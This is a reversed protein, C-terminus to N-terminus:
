LAHLLRYQQGGVCVSNVDDVVREVVRTVVSQNQCRVKALLSYWDEVQSDFEWSDFSLEVEGLFSNHGFRDHHWVSVQLTRTELQSHSIVYQVVCRPFFCLSLPFFFLKSNM